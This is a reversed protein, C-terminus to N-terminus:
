TRSRTRLTGLYKWGKVVPTDNAMKKLNKMLAKNIDELEETKIDNWASPNWSEYTGM